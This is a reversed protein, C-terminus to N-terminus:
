GEIRLNSVWLLAPRGRKDRELMGDVTARRDLWAKARTDEEPEYACRIGTALDEISRLDFRREDLDIERVTGRFSMRETARKSSKVLLADVDKRSAAVLETLAFDHGYLQVRDVGSRKSPALHRLGTLVVDRVQPTAFRADMQDATVGRVVDAGAGALARMAERTADAMPGQPDVLALMEPETTPPLTFGVVISGPALGAFGLDLDAPATRGTASAVERAIRNVVTRWDSFLKALLSVRPAEVNAAPGELRVIFDSRDLLRAIQMDTEYVDNLLAETPASLSRLLDEDGGSESVWQRLGILSEQLMRARSRTADEWAGRDENTKM